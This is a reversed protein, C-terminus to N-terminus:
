QDYGAELDELAEGTEIVCGVAGCQCHINKLALGVPRVSLWRHLCKLCILESVKHPRDAEKELIYQEIDSVNSM